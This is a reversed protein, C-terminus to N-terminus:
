KGWILVLLIFFDKSKNKDMIIKPIQDNYEIPPYCMATLSSCIIELFSGESVIFFFFL